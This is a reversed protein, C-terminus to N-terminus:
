GNKVRWSQYGKISEPITEPKNTYGNLVTVLKSAEEKPVDYPSRYSAGNRNVLSLVNIDLKQCKADIFMEQESSLLRASNTAVDKEIVKENKTLEEAALCNLQLAKRLTRGEAITCASPVAYALFLNDSNLENVEAVDGFERRKGDGSEFVVVYEVCARIIRPDPSSHIAVPKSVVITGLLKTAVRRLAKTTPNGNNLEEPTFFTMVYDHWDADGLYPGRKFEDQNEM